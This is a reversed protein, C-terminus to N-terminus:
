LNKEELYISFEQKIAENNPLKLGIKENFCNLYFSESYIDNLNFNYKRYINELKDKIELVLKSNKLDMLKKFMLIIKFFYDIDLEGYIAPLKLSITNIKEIFYSSSFIINRSLGFYMRYLPMEPAM